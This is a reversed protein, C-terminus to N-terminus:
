GGNAITLRWLAMTLRWLAMTLRWPVMTLSWPMMTLRWLAMNLKLHIMSLKWPRPSSRNRWSFYKFLLELLIDKFSYRDIPVV